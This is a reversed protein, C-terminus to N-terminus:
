VDFRYQVAGAARSAWANTSREKADFTNKQLEPASAFSPANLNALRHARLTPVSAFTSIMARRPLKWPRSKAERAAVSLGDYRAGNRGRAPPTEIQSRSRRSNSEASSSSVTAAIMTSGM